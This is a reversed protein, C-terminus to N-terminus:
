QQEKGRCRGAWAATEVTGPNPSLEVKTSRLGFFGFFLLVEVEVFAGRWGVEEGLDRPKTSGRRGPFREGGVQLMGARRQGRATALFSSGMIPCLRCLADRRGLPM